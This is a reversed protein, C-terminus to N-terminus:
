AAARNKRSLINYGVQLYGGHLARGITQGPPPTLLQNLRLTDSLSARAYLGRLDWGRARYEAHAEAIVTRVELPVSGDDSFFGSNGGFLSAGILLGPRPTADLRGSFAPKRIKALAGEQKAAELGNSSFGRANM